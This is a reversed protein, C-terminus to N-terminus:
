KNGTTNEFERSLEKLPFIFNSAVAVRLQDALAIPVQILFFVMVFILDCWKRKKIIM